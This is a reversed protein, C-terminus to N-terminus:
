ECESLLHNSLKVLLMVNIKNAACMLDDLVAIFEELAALKDSEETCGVVATLKVVRASHHANILCQHAAKLNKLRCILSLVKSGSLTSWCRWALSRKYVM